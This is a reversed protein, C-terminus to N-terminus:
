SGFAPHLSSVAPAKPAFKLLGRASDVYSPFTSKTILSIDLTGLFARGSVRPHQSRRPHQHSTRVLARARLCLARRSHKDSAVRDGQMIWLLRQKAQRAPVSGMRFVM